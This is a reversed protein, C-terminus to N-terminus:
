HLTGLGGANVVRWVSPRVGGFQYYKATLLRTEGVEESWKKQEVSTWFVEFCKFHMTWINVNTAMM